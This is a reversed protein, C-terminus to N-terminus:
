VVQEPLRGVVGFLHGESVLLLVHAVFEIYRVEIRVRREAELAISRAITRDAGDRAAVGVHPRQGGDAPDQRGDLLPAVGCGQEIGLRVVCAERWERRHECHAIRRDLMGCWGAVRVHEDEIMAIPTSAEVEVERM